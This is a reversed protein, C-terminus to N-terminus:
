HNKAYDTVSNIQKIIEEGTDEGYSVLIKDNDNFVYNGLDDLLKNNVYFKLASKGNNCLKQGNDFTLCEKSLDM